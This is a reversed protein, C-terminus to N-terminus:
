VALKMCPKECSHSAALCPRTHVGAALDRLPGGGPHHRHHPRLLRVPLPVRIADPVVPKRIAGAGGHQGTAGRFLIRPGNQFGQSFGLSVTAGHSDPPQLECVAFCSLRPASWAQGPQRRHCQMADLVVACEHIAPLPGTPDKGAPPQVARPLSAGAAVGAGAAATEVGACLMLSQIVMYVWEMKCPRATSGYRATEKWGVIRHHLRWM